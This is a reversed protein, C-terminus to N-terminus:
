KECDIVVTVDPLGESSATLELKGGETGAKIIVLCRGEFTLRQSAQYSEMSRPNSSAVAVISGDGSLQFNVEKEVTPNRIGKNDVLEVTIYSLDQGDARIIQRDPSLKISEPMGATVLVDSSIAAGGEYNVANLEGAEYPVKWSAIWRNERNTQKKGLSMGNLFLEVEESRNYVQVELERGNFGDWNWSRVVDHWEWKSWNMKDPNLPFTPTPPVVVIAPKNGVEWLVDRYYSQPRKWGCIDIDGCYAHSWPYFERKLMYGLWGISAEGLYDFGTWVFDGIVYPHDVVNMWADFAELPYSEAGYMIRQPVREHDEVYISAKWHDGGAAYNYGSLDLTAFYPDKDPNLGNVASTIPRSSDIQRIFDGMEQALRAGEPEGREPIENGISWMIISPHNRDRLVMSEVDRQWWEDFYLHYDQPNKPKRWMDFAEDIVMVGLRDCANLFAESPPNHSCRIANFGNAKMLEVRREEARDYAASGLPGNDHHMCGGKLLTPIGNLLFGKEVSFELSRIGFSQRMEDVKKNGDYVETILTYLEPSDPSWLSPNEISIEQTSIAKAGAPITLQGSTSSKDLGEIKSVINVSMEKESENQVTIEVKALASDTTIEPTTISLGGQPIYVNGTAILWVHRYIGSGTYWRSNLGENKVQVALTNESDDNLYGTIDYGFTTYGYPHNGLHQGNLWIDANMYIGDFQLYFRMNKMSDAVSFHKRYWSTGGTFFGTNYSGVANSDLPSDTGPIDEISWDHPLDITRWDLDNFDPREAGQSDGRYFKWDSDFLMINRPERTTCSIASLFLIFYFLNKM